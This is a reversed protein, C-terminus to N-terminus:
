YSSILYTKTVFVQVEKINNDKVTQILLEMSSTQSELNQKQMTLNSLIDQHQDRLVQFESKSAQFGEVVQNLSNNIRVVFDILEYISFQNGNKGFLEFLNNEIKELRKCSESTHQCNHQLHRKVNMVEAKLCSMEKVMNGRLNGAREIAELEELTHSEGYENGQYTETISNYSSKSDNGCRRVLYQVYEESFMESYKNLSKTQNELIAEMNEIKHLIYGYRDLLENHIMKQLKTKNSKDTISNSVVDQVKQFNQIINIGHSVTVNENINVVNNELNINNLVHIDNTSHGDNNRKANDMRCHANDTFDSMNQKIPIEEESSDSIPGDIRQWIFGTESQDNKNVQLQIVTDKLSEIEEQQAKNASELEGCRNSLLKCQDSIVLIKKELDDIRDLSDDQEDNLKEINEYLRKNVNRQMRNTLDQYGEIKTVARAVEYMEDDKSDAREHGHIMKIMEYFMIKM